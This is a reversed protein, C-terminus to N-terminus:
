EGFAERVAAIVTRPDNTALADIGWRLFEVAAEPDDVVWTGIRMRSGHADGVLSRGVGVVADSHPLVWPHGEARAFDLASSGDIDRITLLGTPIDPALERARAVSRPNFSSLLVFGAFSVAELVELTAEVLPESQADYDPEGPINKIEIDAGVEGSLVALAEALTPVEETDGIRLRKVEVLTMSRVLGHGNTTRDVDPDHIVLPVGDASLRVDFEVCDAGLDMALQFAELTNEPADRPAGRHAVVLGRGGEQSFPQESVVSGEM